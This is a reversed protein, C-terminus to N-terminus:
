SRPWSQTRSGPLVIHLLTAPWPHFSRPYAVVTRATVALASSCMAWAAGAATLKEPLAGAVAKRPVAPVPLKNEGPPLAKLYTAIARLDEDKLHQTSHLVVEPMNGSAAAFRNKGTKLFRVTDEVTRLGRLSLARWHKVTEGALFYRGKPGADSTAKEQFALGRPTHCAGCHGLSRVLYAGRNWVPDKKPDRTFPTTDLFAWNWLSLGWRMSFPWHMESPKNAQRVPAVGLMLYAYLAHMDVATMRAYSPYPMAPYLNHGDAAVGKRMSRDFQGFSYKGIGTELDPTINTSYLTGFPTELARGGAMAAGKNVGKEATHCAVCNGAQTLYRGRQMTTDGASAPGCTSALLAVGMLVLGAFPRGTDISSM